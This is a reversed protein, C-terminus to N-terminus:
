LRAENFARDYDAKTIHLGYYDTSPYTSLLPLTEKSLRAMNIPNTCTNNLLNEKVRKQM